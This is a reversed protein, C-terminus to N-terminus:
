RRDPPRRGRARSPSAAPFRPRRAAPARPTLSWLCRDNRSQVWTGAIGEGKIPSPYLRGRVQCPPSPAGRRLNGRMRVKEWWPLLSRVLPSAPTLPQLPNSPRRPRRACPRARRAPSPRRRTAAALGGSGIVEDCPAVDAGIFRQAFDSHITAAAERACHRGGAFALGHRRRPQRYLLRAPGAAQMLAGGVRDAATGPSVWTTGSIRPTTRSWHGSKPRPRAPSSPSHLSATPRTPRRPRPSTLLTPLRGRPAQRCVAWLRAARAPRRAHAGLHDLVASSEALQERARNLLDLTHQAERREVRPGKTAREHARAAAGISSRSIGYRWSPRRPRRRQRAPRVLCTRDGGRPSHRVRPRRRHAARGALRLNVTPAWGWGTAPSTGCPSSPRFWRSRVWSRPWAGCVNTRCGCPASAARCAITPNSSRPVSPPM